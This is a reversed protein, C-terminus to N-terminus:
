STSTWSTRPAPAGAASSRAAGVRHQERAGADGPEDVPQLPRGPRPAHWPRRGRAARPASRRPGIRTARPRARTARPDPVDTGASRRGLEVSRHREGTRSPGATPQGDAPEADDLESPWGSCSSRLFDRTAVEGVAIGCRPSRGPWTSPTPRRRSPGAGPGGRAGGPRPRGAPEAGAPDAARRVVGAALAAPSSSSRTRTSAGPRRRWRTGARGLAM